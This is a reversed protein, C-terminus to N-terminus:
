DSSGHGLRLGTISNEHLAWPHEVFVDDEGVREMQEARVGGNDISITGARWHDDVSRVHLYAPQNEAVRAVVEGGKVRSDHDRRRSAANMIAANLVIRKAHKQATGTVASDLM